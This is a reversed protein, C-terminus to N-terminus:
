LTVDLKAFPGEGFLESIQAVEFCLTGSAGDSAQMAATYVWQPTVVTMERLLVAGSYLRVLYAESAEGLAVDGKRWSDGNIRTRRIWGFSLDGAQPMVRVHVPAYPRLGIGSFTEVLHKATPDDYGRGSAGVRFHRELGLASRRLGVQQVASNLVVIRTGVPWQNPMLADTGLQGRLLRTLEYTRPGVLTATVFQIIEWNDSSGDGIALSNAGNLVDMESASSLNGVGMKVQLTQLDWLSNPGAKLVSHTRGISAGVTILRDFTYGIDSAASWVGVAGQWPKAAIALYPAHPVEEGTLLPLDLFIPKVPLPITFGRPLSREEVADSPEYLGAEVRTAEILQADALEVRDIRYTQGQATVVDGAGLHIASRPLAWRATDRAVRAEALWREAIARAEGGTLVLPMETQTVGLTEDDSFVAAEQRMDFDGEAKIYGVLVRGATEIEAARHTEFDGDLEPTVALRSLDLEQVARGDRMRFVLKGAREAVDFGYAVMLTQLMARGSSLDSQVYGRVVGYLGSVDFSGVGSGECIEAVVLALPQGSARGTMWHGRMYNSGDTWVAADNPFFPFPRADWAWVHGRAMDLMRGNYTTALPNNVQDGWFEAMARLYQMQLFDDRRGNSFYPLLSESSKPDLFKNPQNTGRDIAACGYETFRIPKSKPVWDTAQGQRVGDLRNHHAKSWWNRIDKYRYVWPEGYAGDEIAFRRQLSRTEDSDYYWDYGEGGAINAKLYDLNYISGWSADAPTEGDRWDSLPMYNDIGIFDINSDAWLADLHFYINGGTHYGFYESWDAAYSIKTNPGLIARVEAALQRLAQVAPFSDGAGRITSLGVMESGICFADVGGAAACLHAYHLIFRRYRWEAPGSYEVAGDVVAFDAPQATGFFAAVEAEAAATRDMSGARGASVDLTIRGRWPLVPQDAAGTWPDVRGNGALQEMLIFPYFMVEQGGAQIAMISEIVSRDSPTGGYVSSGEVRAVEQAAARAIGGATWLMGEGDLDVQEVKPQVLCTGCRLDDGFWSVVLSVSGVNPLEERLQELSTAFDTMGSPSHVNASRAAVEDELYHVPTTALAYEGTGPILAVAEVARALNTQGEAFDGQAARVVEFSLQPVRNGFPALALDEIVVYAIGRYAPAQGAGEVAAIKPDPQQTEGGKYVRLNLESPAIEVGDAWIRGVSAIRGECLAVALSVSYSYGTTKPQPTGKGGGSTEATEAFRTAWIVQGAVRVRGFVRAVATGESAGMLRFRDVRGVQVADSGGGLIKQDIVRGLTAGAARGIVAGSLGLATGGFGSGLAAGAASLLITAM